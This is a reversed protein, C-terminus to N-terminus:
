SLRKIKIWISTIRIDKSLINVNLIILEFFLSSYKEVKNLIRNGARRCCIDIVLNNLDRMECTEITHKMMM